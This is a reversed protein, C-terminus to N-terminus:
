VAVIKSKENREKSRTLMPQPKTCAGGQCFCHKWCQIGTKFCTCTEKKCVKKCHCSTRASGGKRKPVTPAPVTTETSPSNLNSSEDDKHTMKKGEIITSEDLTQMEMLVNVASTASVLSPTKKKTMGDVTAVPSNLNQSTATTKDSVKKETSEKAVEEGYEALGKTSDVIQEANEHAKAHVQTSQSDTIPEDNAEVHPSNFNKTPETMTDSANKETSEKAGEKDNEDLCNTSDVISQGKNHVKSSEPDTTSQNVEAEMKDEDENENEDKEVGDSSSEESSSEESSSEESRSDDDESSDDKSMTAPQKKRRKKDLEGQKMNNSDDDSSNEESSARPNKTLKKDDDQFSAPPKKRQVNSRAPPKKRAKKDDSTQEPLNQGIKTNGTDVFIEFPKMLQETSADRDERTKNFEEGDIELWGSHIGFLLMKQFNLEMEARVDEEVIKVRKRLEEEPDVEAPRKLNADNPQCLDAFNMPPEEMEAKPIAARKKKPSPTAVKIIQPYWNREILGKAFWQFTLQHPIMESLSDLDEWVGGFIKKEPQSLRDTELYELTM